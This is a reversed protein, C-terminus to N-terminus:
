VKEEADKIAKEYEKLLNHETVRVIGKFKGYSKEGKGETFMMM